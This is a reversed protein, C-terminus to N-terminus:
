SAIEQKLKSGQEKNKEKTLYIRCEPDSGDDCFDKMKLACESGEYVGQGVFKIKLELEYGIRKKGRVM